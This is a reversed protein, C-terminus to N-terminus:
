VYFAALCRPRTLNRILDHEFVLPRHPRICAVLWDILWREITDLLVKWSFEGAANGQRWINQCFNAKILCLICGLKTALLSHTQLLCNSPFAHYLRVFHNNRATHVKTALTSRRGEGPEERRCILQDPNGEGGGWIVPWVFPRTTQM